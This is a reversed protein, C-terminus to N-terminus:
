TRASSGSSTRVEDGSCWPATESPLAHAIRPVYVPWGSATYRKAAPEAVSRPFPKCVPIGARDTAVDDPATSAKLVAGNSREPVGGTSNTLRIRERRATTVGSVTQGITGKKVRVVAAAIIPPEATLARAGIRIPPQNTCSSRGIPQPTTSPASARPSRGDNRQGIPATSVIPNPIIADTTLPSAAILQANTSISM